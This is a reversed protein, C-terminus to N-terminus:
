GIDGWDYSTELRQVGKKLQSELANLESDLAVLQDEAQELTTIGFETKLREYVGDLRGQLQAQQLEADEIQKKIAMLREVVNSM